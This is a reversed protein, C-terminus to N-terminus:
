STQRHDGIHSALTLELLSRLPPKDEDQKLLYAHVAKMDHTDRGLKGSGNMVDKADGGESDEEYVGSQAAAADKAYARNNMYMDAALLVSSPHDELLWPTEPAHLYGLLGDLVSHSGGQAHKCRGQQQVAAEIKVDRLTSAWCLWAERQIAEKSFVDDIFSPADASSPVGLYSAEGNRDNVTDAPRCRADHWMDWQLQEDAIVRALTCHDVDLSPDLMVPSQAAGAGDVTGLEDSSSSSSDPAYAGGRSASTHQDTSLTETQPPALTAKESTATLTTQLWSVCDQALESPAGKSTLYEAGWKEITERRARPSGAHGDRQLLPFVQAAAVYADQLAEYPDKTPPSSSSVSM